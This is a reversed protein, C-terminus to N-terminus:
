KQKVYINYNYGQYKLDNSRLERFILDETERSPKLLISIIITVISIFNYM